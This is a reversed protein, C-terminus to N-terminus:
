TGSKAASRHLREPGDTDPQRGFLATRRDIAPEPSGPTLFGDNMANAARFLEKM